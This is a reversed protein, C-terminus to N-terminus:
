AGLSKFFKKVSGAGSNLSSHPFTTLTLEYGIPAGNQYVVDGLESIQGDPIWHRIVETGDVVDIVFARHQRSVAPQLVVAGTTPDPTSDYALAVTTADTQILTFKYTISGETVSERVTAANQWAKIKETSQDRSETIGDESVYGCDTLTAITSVASTPATAGLAGYAVVGTVGVRVKSADLAM